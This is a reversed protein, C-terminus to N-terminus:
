EFKFGKDTFLKLCADVIEQDYLTGRKERIEELAKDIGLAPRYPRHSSMAEVADAVALIRAEILIDDGSLGDPYGSGDIREHHQLVIKAVPWPFQIEKLINYGIAPHTKILEFEMNALRVPKNLIEGPVGIKGIDHISGAMRIGDVEDGSLHMEKAISRALNTVRRQHGATYADRMEVTLAMAQITAGLVRRLKTLARELKAEGKKRDTIDRVVSVWGIRKGQGGVLPAISRETPFITGDKRKMKFEPLYLFGREEIAPYLDEQFKHLATENVHLFATTRGLMEQRTYGFTEIAMPNCDIITPPTKADLVFIADRQSTFTKEFLEKSKRLAKEARRSETVDRIIEVVSEIEGTTKLLPFAYVETLLDKGEDDLHIHETRVSSETEMVKRLPCLHELGSCPQPRRHIIEYCRRGIIEERTGGYQKLFCNNVDKITYNNPDIVVCLADFMSNLIRDLYDYSKHLEEETQKRKIAITLDQSIVELRKLDSEGFPERRSLDMLGIAEGESVLPVNIVSGIDLIRYISPILKRLIKNETFERMLSQITKPDSTLQPRGKQLAKGYLSGAKLPIRVVPIEMGILKEIQKTTTPSLAPYPVLLHRGEESLLYVTARKCSFVKEIKRSLLQIIEETTDGRNVANNVSNILALDETREQVEEEARKREAGSTELEAIRQRMEASEKVLQGETKNKDSM